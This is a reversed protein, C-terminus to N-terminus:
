AYHNYFNIAYQDTMGCIYDVIIQKKSEEDQIKSRWNMPLPSQDKELFKIIFLLIQEAKTRSQYVFESTYFYEYLYEKILIIKNQTTSTFSILFNEQNIIDQYSHLNDNQLNVETQAILDKVFFNIISRTFYNRAVKKDLSQMYEFDIFNFLDNLKSIKKIDLIESRIGDDFDHAIYAIDDSLSAIQAELSPNKNLDFTFLDSLDYQFYTDIIKGNHKILGDLTEWTLNLGEYSIYKKELLTVQRYSQYNHNFNQDIEQSIIEEGVHGFPSHGLDHCLSICEALDENLQFRRSVSRAIQSVELTHTLRNRYYDGKEFMFVQTKDKLKRFATSHYIRDRDREYPLRHDEDIPFLRGKSNENLASLNHFMHSINIYCIFSYTFNLFNKRTLSHLVKSDFNFTSSTRTKLIDKFTIIM